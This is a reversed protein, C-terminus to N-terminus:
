VLIAQRKKDLAAKQQLLQKEPAFIYVVVDEFGLKSVVNHTM